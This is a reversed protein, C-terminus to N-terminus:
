WTKGRIIEKITTKDNYIHKIGLIEQYDEAGKGAVLITDGDKALNIAYRIGETRDQVIIYKGKTKLIGKEVESIIDMPEEYRPNDSTIITFDATNGSIEGMLPRKEKDRNGGCGFM